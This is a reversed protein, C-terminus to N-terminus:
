KRLCRNRRGNRNAGKNYHELICITCMFEIGILILYKVDELNNKKLKM